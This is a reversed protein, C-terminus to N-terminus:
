GDEDDKDARTSVVPVAIRCHVGDRTFAYETRAGLQYPLAREILQRGYGASPPTTTPEPREVGSERWDVHLWPVGDADREVHWAIALRGREGRLAGYKVANTALEHIALAVIQVAGSRLPVDAPGSLNLHADGGSRRTAGHALLEAHLLEDFTVRRGTATSSLLKQVRSLASLREGFGAAFAALSPAGDIMKDAISQIVAILNRTRHQLEAVMVDQRDQAMRLAHIDNSTGLWEIVAGADDRVPVARTSFWRYAGDARRLRHEIDFGGQREALAWARRATARDDPHLMALWAAGHSAREPQGTFAAWQPSAWNWAGGPSARWLLQPGGEVLARMRRENDTVSRELRKRADIDIIMGVWKEVRRAADLLPIARANVWRYAGDRLRLRYELNTGRDHDRADQWQTMVPARDDPHVAQLWGFGLYDEYTQGTLRRWSPSDVTVKGDRPAEWTAIAIGDVLLQARAQAERLAADRRRLGAAARAHEVAVWTREAFERVLRIDAASWRRPARHQLTLATVLRGHKMVPVGLRSRIRLNRWKARLADVFPEDEVDAVAVTQGAQLATLDSGFQEADHLGVFSIADATRYEAEVVIHHRDHDEIFEVYTCRDIALHAGLLDVACDAIQAPDDLPRIADSLKLLLAQSREGERRAESLRKLADIDSVVSAQGTVIGAADRIPVTAVRVWLEGGGDDTYLMEQGPVVSEGRQARAGPFDSAQLSRGEEDWGRWRAVRAPDHSPIAGTPCFRRYEANSIVIRGNADIMAVGVPVSALMAALRAESHQLAAEAIALRKLLAPTDASIDM